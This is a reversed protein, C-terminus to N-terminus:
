RGRILDSYAPEDKLAKFAESKLGSWDALNNRILGLDLAAQLQSIAEHRDQQQGTTLARQSYTLALQYASRAAQGQFRDDLSKAFDLTDNFVAIAQDQQGSVRLAAGYLLMVDAWNERVLDHHVISFGADYSDYRAREDGEVLRAQIRKLVDPMIAILEQLGPMSASLDGTFYALAQQFNETRWLPNFNLLTQRHFAGPQERDVPDDVFNRALARAPKTGTIREIARDVQDNLNQNSAEVESLAQYMALARETDGSAETLRAVLYDQQAADAPNGRLRDELGQRLWANVALHDLPPIVDVFAEIRDGRGLHRYSQLLELRLKPDPLPEGASMMERATELFAKMASRGLEDRYGSNSALSALRTVQMDRVWGRNEPHALATRFHQQARNIYDPEMPRKLLLLEALYANAYVNDQSSALARALLKEADVFVPVEYYLRFGQLKAVHALVTAIEDDSAGPLSRYLASTLDDLVEGAEDKAVSFDRIWDIAMSYQGRRVLTSGPSLADARSYMDWAQRYDETEVLWQAAGVLEELADQQQQWHRYNDNLSKVGAILSFVTLIGGIWKLPGSVKQWLSRSQGSGCHPCVSAGPKISERCAVCFTNSNSDMEM